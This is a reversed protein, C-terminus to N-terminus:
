NGFAIQQNAPTLIQLSHATITAPGAGTPVTIAHPVFINAGPIPRMAIEIGTSRALAQTEATAKHGAIPVYTVGCVFAVGPQGSPKLEGIAQQRRLNLVLDFRQQGDFIALRRDCPNDGKPKALAMVATLPDLVDKLHQPKIPVIDPTQPREPTAAVSTVGSGNFNMKVSGSSATGDFAFTFASPKPLEGALSGNSRTAGTWRVAGLLASIQTDGSLSYSRQDTDSRFEFTGIDFGNFAVRYVARVQSPFPQLGAATAEDGAPSSGAALALVFGALLKHRTSSSRVVSM